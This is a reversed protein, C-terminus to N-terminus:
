VELLLRLRVGQCIMWGLGNTVVRAAVEIVVECLMFRYRLRYGFEEVWSRVEDKM